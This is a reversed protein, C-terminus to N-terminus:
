SLNAIEGDLRKVENAYRQQGIRDGAKKAKDLARQANRRQERLQNLAVENAM